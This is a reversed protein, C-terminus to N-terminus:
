SIGYFSGEPVFWLWFSLKKQNLCSLAGLEGDLTPDALSDDRVAKRSGYAGTFGQASFGPRSQTEQLSLHRLCAM